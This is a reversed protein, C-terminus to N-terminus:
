ASRRAHGRSVHNHLVNITIEPYGLEMLKASLWPKMVERARLTEDVVAREDPPLLCVACRHRRPAAAFTARLVSLRDDPGNVSLKGNNSRKKSM